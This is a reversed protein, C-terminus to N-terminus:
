FSTILTLFEDLEQLSARDAKLFRKAIWNHRDGVYLAPLEPGHYDRLVEHTALIGSPVKYEKAFGQADQMTDSTFIYIFKVPLRAFKKEIALFSPTLQQCPECWSALFFVVTAYGPQHKYAITDNDLISKGSIPPMKIWEHKYRTTIEYTDRQTPAKASEADDTAPKDEKKPPSAATLTNAPGIIQCVSLSIIAFAMSLRSHINRM